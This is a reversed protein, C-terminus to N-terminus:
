KPPPASTGVPFDKTFTGIATTQGITIYGDREIKGTIRQLNGLVDALRELSLVGAEYLRPDHVFLGASGRKDAIAGMIVSLERTSQDLNDIVVLLRGLAVDVREEVRDIGTNVNDSTRQTEKSWLEVLARVQGSAEKLDAAVQKVNGQVDEDGLVTNFNKVLEDFRQVATALNAVAKQADVQAMPREQLLDHLDRAVPTAEHALNGINDIMRNISARLEDTILESMISGAEGEIIATGDTPEAGTMADRIVLIDVRGAGFGFAAGYLKAKSGRPITYGRKILATVIVGRDPREPNWLDVRAIRGIEVGNLQVSTGEGIGRLGYVPGIKLEWDAGRFLMRTEGFWIMLVALCALASIVFVGVLLNRTYEKM